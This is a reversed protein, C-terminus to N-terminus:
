HFLLRTLYYITVKGKHKVLEAGRWSFMHSLPPIAGDNKVKASSPPSHDAESGQRKGELSLAGISMPYSAPYAEFGTQVSHLFSFDNV